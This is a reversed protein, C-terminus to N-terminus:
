SSQPHQLACRPNCQYGGVSAAVYEQETTGLLEWKVRYYAIHRRLSKLFLPAWVVPVCFGLVSLGRSYAGWDIFRVILYYALMVLMLPLLWKTYTSFFVFYFGVREGFHGRISDLLTHEERFKREEDILQQQAATAGNGLDVAADDQVKFSVRRVAADAQVDWSFLSRWSHHGQFFGKIFISNFKEDHLPGSAQVIDTWKLQPKAHRDADVDRDTECSIHFEEQVREFVRQVLLHLLQLKMATTMKSVRHAHGLTLYEEFRMRKDERELEQPDLDSLVAVLQCHDIDAPQTLLVFEIGAIYLYRLVQTVGGRLATLMM